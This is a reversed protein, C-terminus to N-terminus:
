RLGCMKALETEDDIWLAQEEHSITYPNKDMANKLMELSPSAYLRTTQTSSHGLIRSVLELSVDSQYLNTARTRRFMHPYVKSPMEPTNSRILDAYKNILREVNGPSMRHRKNHIVTYFLFDNGKPTANHYKGIYYKLHGITKDTISVIRKKNGKGHIRVYPTPTDLVIDELKLNLLESLRMATDYLLIMIATDRIGIKTNEPASLIAAVCHDPLIHKVKDPVKLFPVRSVILAIQQVAIDGDAVYWLYSKLAALRHNCTNFSLGQHQLYELYDLTFDRSCDSFRFTKLSHNREHVVYKRFITLADRYAKITHSSRSCQGALFLDLFDRTKSFFLKELPIKSM